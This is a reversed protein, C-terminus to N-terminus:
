ISTCINTNNVNNLMDPQYGLINTGTCTTHQTSTSSQEQHTGHTSAERHCNSTHVSERNSTITNMTNAITRALFSAYGCLTEQDIPFAL